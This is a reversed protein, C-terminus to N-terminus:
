TIGIDELGIFDAIQLLYWVLNSFYVNILPVSPKTIFVREAINPLLRKNLPGFHLPCNEFITVNVLPHDSDCKDSGKM